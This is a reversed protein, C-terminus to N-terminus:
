TFKSLKHLVVKSDTKNTVMLDAEEECDGNIKLVIKASEPTGPNIGNNVLLDFKANPLHVHTAQSVPEQMTSCQAHM